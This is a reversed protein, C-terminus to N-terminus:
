FRWIIILVLFFVAAGMGSMHARKRLVRKAPYVGGRGLSIISFFLISMFVSFFFLVLLLLVLKGGGKEDVYRITHM